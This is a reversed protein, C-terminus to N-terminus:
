AGVYGDGPQLLGGARQRSRCILNNTTSYVQVRDFPREPPTMVETWSFYDDSHYVPKLYQGNIMYYRPGPHGPGSAAETTNGDVLETSLNDSTDATPYIAATELESVRQIPLGMFTPGPYAPDSGSEAGRGRFIDQGRRLAHEYNIVGQKTTAIFTPSTRLEGYSAHDPLKDFELDMWLSRMADFLQTVDDPDATSADFSYSQRPCDWKGNAASSTPDIGQITTWTGGPQDAAAPLGNTFGNIFVPISYPLAANGQSVEMKSKDPVSWCEADRSNCYDTYMNQMKQHMVDKFIHALGANTMGGANFNLSKEWKNWSVYGAAISWAIEWDTGTQKNDFQFRHTPDIRNYTSEVKFFIRDKITSGAQIMEDTVHGSKLRPLTYTHKQEENILDKLPKLYRPGTSQWFTTYLDLTGAM